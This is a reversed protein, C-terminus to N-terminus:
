NEITPLLIQFQCGATSNRCSISGGMESILRHVVSLGIGSHGEGKSSNNPSFLNQYIEAAIGPGNDEVVVEIFHAGNVNVQGSGLLVEANSQSGDGAELAEAANKLLNLLPM